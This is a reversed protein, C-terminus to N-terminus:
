SFYGMEEARVIWSEDGITTPPGHGPYVSVDSPLKALTFLSEKMRKPEATPLNLIGISGKFLTDGAIVVKEEKCYFCVGGPSHGPTHIVMFNNRGASVIDGESIFHDPSGGDFKMRGMPIGDAGPDILNDKDEEHVYIPLALAKQIKGADVIHDWHTHTLWIAKVEISLEEMKNLLIAYSGVGPDVIVAEKTETCVIVYTNEALVGTPFSHIDM